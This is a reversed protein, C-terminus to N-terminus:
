FKFQIGRTCYFYIRRYNKRTNRYSFGTKKSLYADVGVVGACLVALAGILLWIKKTLMNNAILGYSRRQMVGISM